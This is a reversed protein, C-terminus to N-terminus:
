RAVIVGRMGVSDYYDLDGFYFTGAPVVLPQSFCSSTGTLRGTSWPASASVAAGIEGADASPFVYPTAPFTSGSFGIASHYITQPAPVDGNAFQITTGAALAIPAAVNGYTGTSDAVAYGFLEGYPAVNAPAIALSMAVITSTPSETQCATPLATGSAGPSPSTGPATTVTGSPYTTPALTPLSTYNRQLSTCSSTTVIPGVFALAAFIAKRLTM